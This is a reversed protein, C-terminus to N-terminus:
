VEDDDDDEDDGDGRYRCQGFPSLAPGGTIIIIIIIIVIIITFCSRTKTRTKEPPSRTKTRFTVNLPGYMMITAILVTKVTATITTKLISFIIIRGFIEHEHRMIYATRNYQRRRDYFFFYYPARAAVTLITVLSAAFDDRLRNRDIRLTRTISM